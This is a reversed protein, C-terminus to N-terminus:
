IIITRTLYNHLGLDRMIKILAEVDTEAFHLIFPGGNDRKLELHRVLSQLSFPKKMPHPVTDDPFKLVHGVCPLNRILPLSDIWGIFNIDSHFTKLLELQELKHEFVIKDFGDANHAILFIPKCEGYLKRKWKILYQLVREFPVARRRKRHKFIYYKEETDYGSYSAKLFDSQSLKAPFDDNEVYFNTVYAKNAVMELPGFAVQTISPVFVVGEKKRILGDTELDLVIFGASGINPCPNLKDLDLGVFDERILMSDPLLINEDVSRCEDIRCYEDYSSSNSGDGNTAAGLPEIHEAM